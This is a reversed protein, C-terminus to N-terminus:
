RWIQITTSLKNYSVPLCELACVVCEKNSEFGSFFGFTGSKTRGPLVELERLGNQRNQFDDKANNSIAIIEQWNIGKDTKIIAHETIEKDHSLVIKPNDFSLIKGQLRSIGVEYTGDKRAQNIKLEIM